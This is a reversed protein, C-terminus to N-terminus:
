VEEHEPPGKSMKLDRLTGTEVEYLWGHVWLPKRKRDAWASVVPKAKCLNDLQAQVNAVLLTQIGEEVSVDPNVARLSAALIALPTLWRNIPADAPAAIIPIPPHANSEAAVRAAHFCADAGGCDTHGVVIVSLSNPLAVFRLYSFYRVM